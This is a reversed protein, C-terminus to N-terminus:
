SALDHDARAPVPHGAAQPTYSTPHLEPLRPWEPPFSLGRHERDEPTFRPTLLAGLILAGLLLIMLAM